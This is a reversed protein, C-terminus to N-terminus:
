KAMSAYIKAYNDFFEKKSGFHGALPARALANMYRLGIYYKQVEVNEQRPYGRKEFYRQMAEEFALREPLHGRRWRSFRKRQSEMHAPNTGVLLASTIEEYTNLGLLEGLRLFCRAFPFSDKGTESTPLCYVLRSGDGNPWLDHELAAAIFLLGIYRAPLTAAAFAEPSNAARMSLLHEDKLYPRVASAEVINCAAALEGRKVNATAELSARDLPVLYRIMALDAKAQAGQDLEVRSAFSYIGAQWTLESMTLQLELAQEPSGYRIAAEANFQDIVEKADPFASFMGDVVKKASGPSGEGQMLKRLTKADVSSKAMRKLALGFGNKRNLLNEYVSIPPLLITPM